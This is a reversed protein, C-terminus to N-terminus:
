AAKMTLNGDVLMWQFGPPSLDRVRWQLHSNKDLQCVTVNESRILKRLSISQQMTITGGPTSKVNGIHGENDFEWGSADVSIRSAKFRESEM